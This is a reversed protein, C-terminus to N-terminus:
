FSIPSFSTILQSYIWIHVQLKTGCDADAVKPGELEQKREQCFNGKSGHHGDYHICAETFCSFRKTANRSECVAKWRNEQESWRLANGFLLITWRCWRLVRSQTQVSDTPWHGQDRDKLAVLFLMRHIDLNQIVPCHGEYNGLGEGESCVLLHPALPAVCSGDLGLELTYLVAKSNWTTNIHKTDQCPWVSKALTYAPSVAAQSLVKPPWVTHSSPWEQSWLLHRCITSRPFTKPIDSSLWSRKPISTSTEASTCILRQPLRLYEASLM